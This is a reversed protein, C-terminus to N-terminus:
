FSLRVRVGAITINDEDPNLAPDSVWQISPTIALNQAFQFRYFLETTLQDDLTEDAPEGHNVAFGILDSRRALYYITGLTISEKYLPATGDSWGAKLFLMWTQDFTWNAGITFGDSQEVGAEEREDVHWLTLHVNKFYRESQSPSWGVEATSYLEDYDEFFKTKTAVGNADSVSGLAYWQENFWHGVGIGTGWDPLAISANFLISLNQFSTWPNAYGLVDVYDNPDYRGLILGSRGENFRYQWNFDGLLDQADNFMTGPIGLYGTEFGLDAPAIDTYAHRHDVSFVLTGTNGSESNTLLWRGSLRLIGSGASDETGAPADNTSQYLSTYAVGLQLGTQENLKAKWDFWPKLARDFSEFRFAPAKVEDDEKLQETTSGPGAFSQEQEYGAKRSPSDESFGSQTFLALLVLTVIRVM